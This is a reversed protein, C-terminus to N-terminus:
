DGRVVVSDLLELSREVAERQLRSSAANLDNELLGRAISPSAGNRVLFESNEASELRLAFYLASLDVDNRADVHAGADVLRPLTHEFASARWAALMLPTTGREDAANVDVGQEILWDLVDRSGTRVAVHISTESYPNPQGDIPHGNAVFTGLLEPDDLYVAVLAISYQGAPAGPPGDYNFWPTLNECERILQRATEHNATLQTETVAAVNDIRLNWFRNLKDHCSGESACGAVFVTTLLFALRLQIM